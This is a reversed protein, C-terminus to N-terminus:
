KPATLKNSKESDIVPSSLYFSHFSTFLNLIFISGDNIQTQFHTRTPDHFNQGRTFNM